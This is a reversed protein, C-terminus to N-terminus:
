VYLTDAMGKIGDAVLYIRIVVPIAISGDPSFWALRAQQRERSTSGGPGALSGYGMALFLYTWWCSLLTEVDVQRDPKSQKSCLPRVSYIRRFRRCHANWVICWWCWRSADTGPCLKKLPLLKGCSVAVFAYTRKQGPPFMTGIMGAAAPMAVSSGLGFFARCLNL